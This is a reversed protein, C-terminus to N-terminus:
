GTARSPGRARVSTLDVGDTIDPNGARGIGAVRGDKIGIDAKVIGILPDVVIAGAIVADLESESTARDYQAMRSRLNKAYGWLVQDAPETLDREIRIWLDTDGLRVRDGTTPGHRLAHEARSIRDPMPRGGDGGYAVLEVDRTEGPEWRLSDGAPLDLRFGARGDRDFQAAREDRAFPFHSSVRVPRERPTRSPSRSAAREPVIPYTATRSASRGPGDPAPSGFPERLVVLRSGEDLLVELRIEPAIDAVGDLVQDPGVAARGAEVVDEYSGGSARPSTCRTASWRSRKPRTSSCVSRSTRRALEAAAFVRLREEETPTLRM